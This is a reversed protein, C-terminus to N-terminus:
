EAADFFSAGVLAQVVRQTFDVVGDLVVRVDLGDHSRELAAGFVNAHATAVINPAAHALNQFGLV